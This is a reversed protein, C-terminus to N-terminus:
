LALDIYAEGGGFLDSVELLSGAAADEPLDYVLLGTKAVDPQMDEFILPEGDDGIAAFTGDSDTSYSKDNGGVLTAATDSFTRTDDKLNQITLEVVVYTGGATEEFFESGVTKTAEASEVTYSTGELEVTEGIAIPADKAGVTEEESGGGESGGGASGGSTDGSGGMAAGGVALVVLVVPIIIRKKKYWPRKAKTDIAVAAQTHETWQHGDWWRMMGNNDPYYGAPTKQDTM